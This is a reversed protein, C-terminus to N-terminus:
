QSRKGEAVFQRIKDLAEASIVHEMMCADRDAMKGGVGISILFDRLLIHRSLITKALRVGKVTLEISSYPEQTVLGLKKLEKVAKVVSPKQVGLRLAIDSVLASKRERTQNYIAELYDELSQTM